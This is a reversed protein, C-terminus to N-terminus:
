VTSNRGDRTYAGRVDLVDVQLFTLAVSAALMSVTCDRSSIIRSLCCIRNKKLSDRM